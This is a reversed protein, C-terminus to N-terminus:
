GFNLDKIFETELSLQKRDVFFNSCVVNCLQDWVMAKEDQGTTIDSFSQCAINQVINEVTPNDYCSDWLTLNYNDKLFKKIKKQKRKFNPILNNMYVKRKVNKGPLGACDILAKRFGYFARQSACINRYDNTNNLIYNYLVGMTVWTGAVENPIQIGFQDEAEMILEVMELGM